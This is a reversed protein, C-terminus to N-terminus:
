SSRHGLSYSMCKVTHTAILSHTWFRFSTSLTNWLGKLSAKSLLLNHWIDPLLTLYFRRFTFFMERLYTASVTGHCIHSPTYPLFRRLTFFAREFGYCDRYLLVFVFYRVFLLLFATLAFFTPSMFFHLWCLLCSFFLPSFHFCRFYFAINM